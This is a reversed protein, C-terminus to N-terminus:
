LSLAFYFSAGVLATKFNAKVETTRTNRHVIIGKVEQYFIEFGFTHLITVGLSGQIGIDGEESVNETDDISYLFPYNLGLTIYIPEWKYKLDLDGVMANIDYLFNGDDSNYTYNNDTLKAIRKYSFGARFGFSSM